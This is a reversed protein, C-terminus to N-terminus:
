LQFVRTPQFRGARVEGLAVAQGAAMALATRDDSEGRDAKWAEVIHPLLVITRGQRIDGADAP